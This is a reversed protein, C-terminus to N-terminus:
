AAKLPGAIQKPSSSLPAASISKIGRLMLLQKLCRAVASDLRERIDLEKDLGEFTAADGIETLAYLHGLEKRVRDLDAQRDETDLQQREQSAARQEETMCSESARILARMSLVDANMHRFDAAKRRAQAAEGLRLTKLNQKRWSYRAIALVLDEELAGSPKLEAVIDQHLKEFDTQSEGPLVSTATYAGHKLARPIQKTQKKGM